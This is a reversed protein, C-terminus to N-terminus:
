GSSGPRDDGPARPRVARGAPGGASRRPDAGAAGPVARGLGAHASRDHPGAASERAQRAAAQCLGDARHRDPQLPQGAARRNRDGQVGAPRLDQGQAAAGRGSIISLPNNMEHGAGAAMEAIIDLSRQRLKRPESEHLERAQRALSEALEQAQQAALAQRLALRVNGYVAQLEAAEMQWTEAQDSTATLVAVCRWDGQSHLDIIWAPGKPLQEECAALIPDDAAIRRPQFYATGPPPPVLPTDAELPQVRSWSEGTQQENFYGVACIGTKEIALVTGGAAGLAQCLARSSAACSYALESSVQLTETLQALIELHRSRRQLQRNARSMQDNLNGLESNADALARLYLSNKTIKQLGLVDARQEIDDALRQLARDYEQDGIGLQKALDRASHSFICNGSFGIRHERVMLDALYVLRAYDRGPVTRPLTEPDQHHLWMTAVISEPLGRRMGLRKGILTHDVGLLRNEVDSIPVHETRAIQSVRAYSKPLIADLAVKGLDHLLGCVFAEEADIWNSVSSALLKAACGVALSHKWFDHRNFPGEAKRDPDPGFVEFVKISLVTNRVTDFGLM